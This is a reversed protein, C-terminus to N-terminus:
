VQILPVQPSFLRIKGDIEKLALGQHRVNDNSSFVSSAVLDVEAVLWDTDLDVGAFLGNLNEDLRIGLGARLPTPTEGKEVNGLPDIQPGGEQLRV